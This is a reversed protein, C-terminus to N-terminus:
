ISTPKVLSIPVPPRQRFSLRSKAIAGDSSIQRFLGGTVQDQM